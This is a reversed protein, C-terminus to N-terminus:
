EGKFHKLNLDYSVGNNWALGGFCGSEYVDYTGKYTLDVVALPEEGAQYGEFTSLYLKDGEIKVHFETGIVDGYSGFVVGGLYKLVYSTGDTNYVNDLYYVQMLNKESVYNVLYGKIGNNANATARLFVGGTAINGTNNSVSFVVEMDSYTATKDLAYSYGNMNITNDDTKTWTNANLAVRKNANLLNAIVDVSKNPIANLATIEESLDLAELEDETTCANIKSVAANYSSEAEVWNEATYASESYIGLSALMNAKAEEFYKQAITEDFEPQNEGKIASRISEVMLQYGEASPHLGDIFLDANTSLPDTEDTCFLYEAEAYHIWDYSAALNRMLANTETIQETITPRKPCHSVSVLVAEFEPLAEKAALMAKEISTVVAKPTTGGTLDNIGINYIGLKPEYAIVEDILSEWHVAVSGGIGIDDISEYEPFYTEFDWWMETYSHGFILVDAKRIERDKSCTVNQFVTGATESWLGIGTGSLPDQDEYVAYCNIKDFRNDYYCYISNGEKVVELRNFNTNIHGASLYGKDLITETGDEVKVLEVFRDATLRYLYYDKGNEDAGFVIGADKNGNTNLEASFTGNIFTETKHLALTNDASVTVGIGFASHYFDFASMDSADDFTYCEEDQSTVVKFNDFSSDDYQSRIGVQGATLNYDGTYTYEATVSKTPENVLSLTVTIKNGEIDVKLNLPQKVGDTFLNNGNGTESITRQHETWTPFSGIILDIRNPADAWGTFNSQVIVSLANISDQADAADSAGLYIASNILNSAGPYIDVSVSQCTGSTERVIAKGEGTAGPPVLQGNQISFGRNSGSLVTGTVAKYDESLNVTDGEMYRNAEDSYLYLAKAVNQLEESLSSNNLANYCFTMVSCNAEFKTEEGIMVAVKNELDLDKAGINECEVIYYNESTTYSQEAGNVIFKLGELNANNEFEFFMKLTTEGELVLTAAALRGFGKLGQYSKTYGCLDQVTVDPIKDDAVYNKNALDESNYDFLLQAYAGYHLMAKVLPTAETYDTSNSVNNIITEAYDRISVSQVDMKQEGDYLTATITDAMEKAPVLCTFQLGDSTELANKIAVTQVDGRPLEFKAYAGESLTHNKSVYFNFAIKGDLSVTMGTFKDTAETSMGEARVSLGNSVTAMLVLSLLLALVKKWYKM